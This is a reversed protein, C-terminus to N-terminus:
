ELGGGSLDVVTRSIHRRETQHQDASAIIDMVGEKVHEFV